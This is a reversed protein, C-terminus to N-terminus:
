PITCVIKAVTWKGDKEKVLFIDYHDIRYLVAVTTVPPWALWVDDVIIPDGLDTLRSVISEIIQRDRQPLSGFAPDTHKYHIRAPTFTEPKLVPGDGGMKTQVCGYMVFMLLLLVASGSLCSCKDWTHGENYILRM